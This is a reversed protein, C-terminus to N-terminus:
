RHRNVDVHVHPADVHVVPRPHEVYIPRPPVYVPVVVPRPCCGGYPCCYPGVEVNVIPHPRVPQIVVNTQQQPEDCGALMVAACCCVLLLAITKM